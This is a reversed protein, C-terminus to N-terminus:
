VDQMLLEKLAHLEAGLRNKADQSKASHLAIDEIVAVEHLLAHRAARQRCAKGTKSITDLLRLLVETNGQASEAIQRFAVSTRWRRCRQLSLPM